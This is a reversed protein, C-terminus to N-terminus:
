GAFSQIMYLASKALGLAVGGVLVLSLVSLVSGALAALGDKELLAFAMLCLAAAPAMNGLPIPLFLVLAMILGLVGLGYELPRRVLVELRPKFLAEGRRLWPLVREVVAAFDRRLLSRRAIVAPLWPSLGLMLQATLFVLPAGLLASTGPPTPVLNPLAFVLILAGFARDGLLAFVDGIAIRERTEDASLTVLVDSLRPAHDGTQRHANSGADM